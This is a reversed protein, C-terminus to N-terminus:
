AQPTGRKSHSQHHWAELKARGSRRAQSLAEADAESRPKDERRLLPSPVPRHERLALQPGTLEACLGAADHLQVRSVACMCTRSGARCSNKRMSAGGARARRGRPGPRERRVACSVRWSVRSVRGPGHGDQGDHYNHHGCVCVTSRAPPAASVLVPYTSRYRCCPRPRVTCQYSTRMARILAAPRSVHRFTPAAAAGALSLAASIAGYGGICTLAARPM